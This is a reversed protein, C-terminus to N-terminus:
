LVEPLKQYDLPKCRLTRGDELQKGACILRQLCPPTGVKGQICAKLDNITQFPQYDFILTKGSLTKVYITSGMSCTAKTTSCPSPYLADFVADSGSTAWSQGKFMSRLTRIEFIMILCRSGVSFPYVYMALNSMQIHDGLSLGLQRPTEFMNLQRGAFTFSVTTPYQTYVDIQLGGEEKRLLFTLGLANLRSSSWDNVERGTLQGEVTYGHGLPM